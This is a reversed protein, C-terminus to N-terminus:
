VGSSVSAFREDPPPSAQGFDMADEDAGWCVAAGDNRLACTQRWGSSISTFREGSPASSQGFGDHGWCEAAGGPRLACTHFGGSSVAAFQGGPPSTQGFSRSSWCQVTRDTRLACSHFGGSDISELGTVRKWRPWSTQNYDDSGWCLPSGDQLVGCTNFGGGSVSSFRENPPPLAQGDDHNRGWCAVTADSRLACTHFRGSTISVFGAEPTAQASPEGDISAGRLFSTSAQGDYNRGWCVPSGDLRLACTYNAGSSIHSFKEGSPPSTEGDRHAGWCAPTGDSRLACTHWHGSNVSTFREGPPPSAQGTTNNGWCVPTGDGRLACAHQHGSSISVFTEGAPPSVYSDGWCVPTGDGRLACTHLNGSSISVFTEGPPPSAKGYYDSGWCVPTGDHRLACVHTPGSSISAFTEGPPPSTQNDGHRGWCVPVGDPKLGCSFFAGSSVQTFRESSPGLISVEGQPPWAHLEGNGGWCTVAGDSDLACAHTFGSSISQFSYPPARTASTSISLGFTGPLELDQTVVEVTYQGSPLVAQAWHASIFDYDTSYYTQVGQDVTLDASAEEGSLHLSTLDDSSLEIRVNSWDSVLFSYSQRYGETPGEQRCQRSWMGLLAVTGSITGLPSADCNGIAGSSQRVEDPLEFGSDYQGNEAQVRYEGCADDVSEWVMGYRSIVYTERDLSLGIHLHGREPIDLQFGLTAVGNPDVVLSADKWNAYDLIDEIMSHPDTLDGRWGSTAEAYQGSSAQSWGEPSRRWYETVGRVPDFTYLLHNAGDNLTVWGTHSSRIDRGINSIGYDAWGFNRNCDPLSTRVRFRASTSDRLAKFANTTLKWKTLDIDEPRDMLEDSFVIMREIEQADMGPKVLPHALLRLLAEDMPNLEWRRLPSYSMISDPESRHFMGGYVHIVEHNMVYVVTQQASQSLDSYEPGMDWVNHVRVLGGEIEGMENANPSACGLPSINGCFVG